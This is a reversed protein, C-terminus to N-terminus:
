FNSVLEELFVGETLCHVWCNEVHEALVLFSKLIETELALIDPGLM